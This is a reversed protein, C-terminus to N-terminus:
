MTPSHQEDIREIPTRPNGCHPCHIWEPALAEGCGECRRVNPPPAVTSSSSSLNGVVLAVVVILILFGVLPITWFLGMGGWMWTMMMGPGYAGDHPARSSLRQAWTAVFLANFAVVALAAVVAITLYTRWQLNKM